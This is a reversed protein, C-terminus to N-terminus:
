DLLAAGPELPAGRDDPHRSPATFSTGLGLLVRSATVDASTFSAAFSLPTTGGAPLPVEFTSALAAPDLGSFVGDLMADLGDSVFGTLTGALTSRLSGSALSAVINLVAGSLGSFSTSIAGVTTAVSGKRVSLRPRGSSLALDFTLKVDVSAFDVWGSTD